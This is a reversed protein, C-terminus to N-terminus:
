YYGTWGNKNFANLLGQAYAKEAETANPAKVIAEAVAKVSRSETQDTVTITKGDKEYTVSLATYVPVDYKAVPANMLVLNSVFSGDAQPVKNVGKVSM